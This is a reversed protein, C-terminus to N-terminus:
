KSGKAHNIDKSPTSIKLSLVGEEPILKIVPYYMPHPDAYKM